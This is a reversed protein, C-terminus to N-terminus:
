YGADTGDISQSFSAKGMTFGRNVKITTFGAAIWAEMGGDISFIKTEDWGKAVLLQAAKLSNEGLQCALIVIRNKPIDLYNQDFLSFAINNVFPVNFSLEEVEDGERLDILLAYSKLYENAIEPSIQQITAM